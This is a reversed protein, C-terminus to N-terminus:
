IEKKLWQKDKRLEELSRDPAPSHAALRNKMVYALAGGVILYVLGTLLFGLAYRAAPDFTDFLTSVFLAVAVNLLAFGIAALAGGVAIMAAGRTYVGVEERVEVKFLGLKADVLSMVQDGLRGFMAPLGDIDQQQLQREAEARELEAGAPSQVMRREAQAM